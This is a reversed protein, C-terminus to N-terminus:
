KMKLVAVVPFHDSAYKEEIVEHSTVSFQNVPRYAIYDITGRGEEDSFTDPCRSVCTRQFEGDLLKVVNSEPTANFDGGIIFPLSATAAIRNIEKIQLERNDENYAELHTSGFIIKKGNPLSIESTALVRPEGKWGEKVPLQLTAGNSMPYKSLIGIGYSGGGFDMAKGFYFHMNLKQAIVELENFPGSRTTHNDLEQLAVLDPNQKKIVNTIADIDIKGTKSESPPNCHHVNYTMVRLSTTVGTTDTKSTTHKSSTCSLLLLFPILLINCCPIKM